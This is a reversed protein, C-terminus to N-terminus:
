QPIELLTLRATSAGGFFRGAGSGNIFWTGATGLGIRVNITQASTGGPAWVHTLPSLGVFVANTFAMAVNVANAGSNLFMAGIINNTAPGGVQPITAVAMIKSTSYVPTITATLIQTGETNQPITDDVPITTTGTTHAVNTAEVFNVSSLAAKLEVRTISKSGSTGASIDVIRFLDGDAVNAGTIPTADTIKADPM